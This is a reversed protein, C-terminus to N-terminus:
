KPAARASAVFAAWTAGAQINCGFGTGTTFVDSAGNTILNGTNGTSGNTLFDLAILASGVACLTPGNGAIVYRNGALRPV